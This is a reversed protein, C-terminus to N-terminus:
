FELNGELANKFDNINYELKRFGSATLHRRYEIKTEKKSQFSDFLVNIKQTAIKLISAQFLASFEEKDKVLRKIFESLLKKRAKKDIIDLYVYALDYAINNLHVYFWDLLAIKNRPTIIINGPHLDGHTIIECKEDLLKRNSDLIEDAKEIEKESFFPNLRAKYKNFEQKHWRYGKKELKIINKKKALFSLKHASGLANVFDAASFKALARKGFGNYFDGATEGEIYDYLMWEPTKKWDGKLFRPVSLDKKGKYLNAFLQNIRIEKRFFDRTQPYDEIRMKFIVKKGTKKNLCLATYFREKFREPDFKYSPILELEAIKKNINKEINKLYPGYKPM